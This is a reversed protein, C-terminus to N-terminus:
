TPLSAPLPSLPTASPPRPGPLAPRPARSGDSVRIASSPVRAATSPPATSTRRGPLARARSPAGARPVPSPPAAMVDAAPPHHPYLAEFPAAALQAGPSVQMLATQM